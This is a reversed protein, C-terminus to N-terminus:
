EQPKYILKVGNTFLMQQGSRDASVLFTVQGATLEGFPAHIELLGDSTVTGSDLEAILGNTEMQYGTSTEVRVLGTFAATKDAGNLAGKTAAINIQSGNPNDMQMRIDDIDVTHPDITNPHAGAASIALTAGADTVGSFRPKSLRQERAIEAVKTLDISTSQGPNRAFLFLTSLLALACLPLLVKALGVIQSYLNDKGGM